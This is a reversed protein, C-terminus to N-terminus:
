RRLWMRLIEFLATAADEDFIIVCQGTVHPDIIIDGHAKREVVVNTFGRPGGHVGCQAGIARRNDRGAKASAGEVVSMLSRMEGSRPSIAERGSMPVPAPLRSSTVFFQPPAPFAGSSGPTQQGSSPFRSAALLRPPLEVPPWGSIPDSGEAGACAPCALSGFPRDSDLVAVTPVVGPQPSMVRVRRGPVNPV